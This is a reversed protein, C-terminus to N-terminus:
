CLGADARIGMQRPLGAHNEATAVVKLQNWGARELLIPGSFSCQSSQLESSLDGFVRPFWSDHQIVLMLLVHYLTYALSPYLRYSPLLKEMEMMAM